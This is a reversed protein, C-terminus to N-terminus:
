LISPSPRRRCARPVSTTTPRTSVWPRLYVSSISPLMSVTGRRIRSWRPALKVSISRSATSARRGSTASISSIACVLTGPLRLSFRQCSMSSSSFAPISTIEVSFM